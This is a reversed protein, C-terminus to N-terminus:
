LLGVADLWTAALLAHGAASPHCGDPTWVTQPLGARAALIAERAPVYIAEYEEALEEVAEAYTGLLVNLESANDADISTPSMLVLQRVGAARAQDLLRVYNDRYEALTVFGQGNWEGRKRAVDNVGVMVSLVNPRVAVCDADWRALLEPTRDGSVGRNVLRVPLDPLLAQLM